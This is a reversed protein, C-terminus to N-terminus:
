LYGARRRELEHLERRQSPLFEIGDAELTRGALRRRQREVM